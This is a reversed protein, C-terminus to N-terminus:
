YRRYVCSETNSQPTDYPTTTYTTTTVTLTNGSLSLTNTQFMTSLEVFMIISFSYRGPIYSDNFSADFSWGEANALARCNEILMSFLQTFSLGDETIEDKTITMVSSGDSAIWNGHFESPVNLNIATTGEGSFSCLLLVLVACAILVSGKRKLGKM